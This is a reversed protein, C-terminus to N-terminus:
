YRKREYYVSYAISSFTTLFINMLVINVLDKTIIGMGYASFVLIAAIYGRPMILSINWASNRYDKKKRYIIHVSAFRCAIAALLITASLIIYTQNLSSLAFVIGLFVFFITRVFFSVDAEIESIERIVGSTFRGTLSEKVRFRRFIGFANGFILSFTLVSISGNGGFLQTINYVIFLIGLTAAYNLPHRGLFKGIACLWALAFIGGVAVALPITVFITGFVGLGDITSRTAMGALIFFPVIQVDNIVSEVTLLQKTKKPMSIKSIIPTIVDTATGSIAIAMIASIIFSMGMIYHIIITFAFASLGIVTVTFVFVSPLTKVVRFINFSLGNDLMVVILMFATIIPAYDIVGSPEIIGTVPGLFIGFLILFLVEPIKTRKFLINGAFGILIIIGLVFFIADTM